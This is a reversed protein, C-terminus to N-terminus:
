GTCQNIANFRENGYKSIVFSSRIVVNLEVEVVVRSQDELKFVDIRAAKEQVHNLVVLLRECVDYGAKGGFSM